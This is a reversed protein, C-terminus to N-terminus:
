FTEGREKKIREKRMIDRMISHAVDIDVCLRGTLYFVNPEDRLKDKYESWYGCQMLLDKFGPHGAYARMPYGQRGMYRLVPFWDTTFRYRAGANEKPISCEAITRQGSKGLIRFTGTTYDRSARYESDNVNGASFTKEEIMIDDGIDQLYRILRNPDPSLEPAIEVTYGLYPLLAKMNEDMEKRDKGLIKKMEEAKLANGVEKQMTPWDMGEVDIGLRKAERITDDKNRYAM